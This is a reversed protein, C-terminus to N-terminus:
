KPSITFLPQTFFSGEERVMSEEVMLGGVVFVIQWWSSAGDSQLQVPQRLAYLDVLRDVAAGTTPDAIAMTVTAAVM